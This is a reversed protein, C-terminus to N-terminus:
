TATPRAPVVALETAQGVTRWGNGVRVLVGSAAVIVLGRVGITALVARSDPVPTILTAAPDSAGRRRLGIGQGLEAVYVRPPEDVRVTGLVGLTLDDIWTVSQAWVFPADIIMPMAISTPEGGAERVIGAVHVQADGGDRAHSAIALRTGDRSIAISVPVRGALWSTGVRQAAPGTAVSADLSWVAGSGDTAARGAVWLRGSADYAPRSLGVGAVEVPLRSRGRWRALQTGDLSVAAVDLGDPGAALGVFNSPISPLEGSGASNSVSLDDLRDVDIRALTEGTRLLAIRPLPPSERLYGTEGVALVRDPLEPVTLRGGAQVEISVRTVEPVAILTAVLQAWMARRHAVDAVSAPPTLVVTAVGDQVPVADRALRVTEPFGTEVVGKLYDPPPTVQARALATILRPGSAWWRVDSLLRRTGVVPYYLPLPRFLRDFDNTDVWVGFGAAPLEIRWEGEIQVLRLRVEQRTGPPLERYHGTDDVVAVATTAALVSDTGMPGVEILTASDFVTVASTPLWRPVSEPTLFANAVLEGNAAPEQFAAGARLFGRVIQERSAGPEPPSAVIRAGGALREDLARGPQVPGSAPLGQCGGLAGPLLACGAALFTRRSVGRRPTEPTSPTSV